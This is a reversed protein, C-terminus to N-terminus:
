KSPAATPRTLMLGVQDAVAVLRFWNRARPYDAVPIEIARNVSSREIKLLGHATDHTVSLAYSFDAQRAKMAQPLYLPRSHAPLHIVISEEETNEFHFFVPTTRGSANLVPPQGEEWVALPFVMRDNLVPAYAPWHVAAHIRLPEDPNNLGDIKQLQVESSSNELDLLARAMSGWEEQGSGHLRERVVEAYHGTFTRVCNGQLSGDLGLTLDAKVAAVSDEAPAPPVNLFVQQQPMAMLAAQGEINWPLTGPSLPVDTTPDYLIWHGDVHVAITWYDLFDESVMETRFPFATRRPHYVTHCEFGAARVLAVFLYHFDQERIITSDIKDLRILEDVSEVYRTYWNELDARKRFRQYLHQVYNYIRRVKEPNDSAGAVLEAAEKKVRKTVYGLDADKFDCGTSFFAWPGRSLPTPDPMRLTLHHNELVKDLYEKAEIITLSFYTDPPALPERHISALNEATFGMIGQKEDHTMRGGHPNLLFFRRLLKRDPRYRDIYEFKRIPMEARQVSTMLWDTQDINPEHEWVDLIAGKEVGTIALFKESVGWDSKSTLYGLIGNARGEEAFERKRLDHNDFTRTTGDPLTLRAFIEYYPNAPGNGSWFRTLRTVDTARSPDYIKIRLRYLFDRSSKHREDVNLRYNLIEAPAKPEIHPTNDALEAQTVPDWKPAAAVALSMGSLVIFPLGCWLSKQRRLSLSLITM